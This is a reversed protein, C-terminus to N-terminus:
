QPKVSTLLQHLTIEIDADACAELLHVYYNLFEQTKERSEM